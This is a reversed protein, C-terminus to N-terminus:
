DHLTHVSEELTRRFSTYSGTRRSICPFRSIRPFRAAFMLVRTAHHPFLLCERSEDM